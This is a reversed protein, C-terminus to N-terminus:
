ALFAPFAALGIVDVFAGDYGVADAVFCSTLYFCHFFLASDGVM